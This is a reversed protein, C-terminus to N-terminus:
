NLAAASGFYSNAMGDRATVKQELWVLPNRQAFGADSNVQASANFFIALGLLFVLFIFLGILGRANPFASQSASKRKMLHPRLKVHLAAKALLPVGPPRARDDTTIPRTDGNM